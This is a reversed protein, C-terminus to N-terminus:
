AEVLMDAKIRSRKGDCELTIVICGLPKPALGHQAAFGRDDAWESKYGPSRVFWGIDTYRKGKDSLRERSIPVVYAQHNHGNWIVDADPMYVAQRNTAIVGRTVPASGEGAAHAYYLNVSDRHKYCQVLLRVWGKWGGTVAASGEGRLSYVLRDSLDTSSNKLVALEHNGPCIMVIKDAYPSLFKAADRVVFDYYDDRRYEPRLEDMSRRPDFRGQMADFFDGGLLIYAEDAKAQKLHKTLLDRECYISDFHVDSILYFKQSFVHESFLRMTLVGDQYEAM